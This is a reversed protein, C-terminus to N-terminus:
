NDDELFRTYMKLKKNAKKLEKESLKGGQCLPCPVPLKGDRTLEKAGFCYLCTESSQHNKM